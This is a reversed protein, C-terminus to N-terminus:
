SLAIDMTFAGLTSQAIAEINYAFFLLKGPDLYQNKVRRAM